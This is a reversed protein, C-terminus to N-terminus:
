WCIKIYITSIDTLDIKQDLLWKDFVLGYDKIFEVLTGKYGNTESQDKWYEEIGEESLAEGWTEKFPSFESLYELTIDNRFSHRERIEDKFEQPLETYEFVLVTKKKFM